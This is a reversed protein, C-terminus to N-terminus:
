KNDLKTLIKAITQHENETLKSSFKEEIVAKYIDWMEKRLTQGKKTLIATVGRGDESCKVKKILGQKVLRDSLRTINFRAIYVKESLESMRLSQNDALELIWLVDYVDLGPYGHKKFAEEISQNIRQFSTFFLAWSKNSMFDLIYALIQTQLSSHYFLQM